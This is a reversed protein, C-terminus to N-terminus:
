LGDFVAMDGQLLRQLYLGYGSKQLPAALAELQAADIYGMRFAIEEPSAVQLGQREQLVEV